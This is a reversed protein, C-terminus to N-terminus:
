IEPKLIEALDNIESFNEKLVYFSKFWANIITESYVPVLSKKIEDITLDVQFDFFSMRGKKSDKRIELVVIFRGFSFVSTTGTEALSQRIEIDIDIDKGIVERNYKIKDVDTAMGWNGSETIDDVLLTFKQAIPPQNILYYKEM